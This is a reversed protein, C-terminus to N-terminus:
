DLRFIHLPPLNFVDEKDKQTIKSFAIGEEATLIIKEFIYNKTFIHTKNYQEILSNMQTPNVIVDSWNFRTRNNFNLETYLIHFTYGDKIIPQSFGFGGLIPSGIPNGKLTYGQIHLSM